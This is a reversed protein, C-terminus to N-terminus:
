ALEQSALKSVVEDSTDIVTKVVNQRRFKKGSLSDLYELHSLRRDEVEQQRRSPETPIPPIGPGTVFHRIGRFSIINKPRLSLGNSVAISFATWFFALCRTWM